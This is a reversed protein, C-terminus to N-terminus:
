PALALTWPASRRLSLRDSLFLLVSASHGSVENMYVSAAGNEDLWIYDDKGDGDTGVDSTLQDTGCGRLSQKSRVSTQSACGKERVWELRRSAKLFGCGVAM